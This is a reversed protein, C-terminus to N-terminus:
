EVDEVKGMAAGVGGLVAGGTAGLAIPIGFAYLAVPHTTTMVEQNEVLLSDARQEVNVSSAWGAPAFPSYALSFWFLLLSGGLMLGAFGGAFGFFGISSFISSRKGITNWNGSEPIALDEPENDTEAQRAASRKKSTRKKSFAGVLALGVGVLWGCHMWWQFIETAPARQHDSSIEQVLFAGLGFLNAFVLGGVAMALLLGYGKALLKGLTFLM